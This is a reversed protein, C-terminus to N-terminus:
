SIDDDDRQKVRNILQYVFFLFFVVFVTLSILRVVRRQRCDRITAPLDTASTELTPQIQQTQYQATQQIPYQLMQYSQPHPYQVPLPQPEGSFQEPINTTRPYPQALWGSEQPAPPYNEGHISTGPHQAPYIPQIPTTPQHPLYADTTVPFPLSARQEALAEDYSPPSKMKDDM